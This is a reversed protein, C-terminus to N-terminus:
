QIFSHSRIFSCRFSRTNILFFISWTSFVFCHCLIYVLILFLFLFLSLETSNFFQKHLSIAQFLDIRNWEIRNASMTAHSNANIEFQFNVTWNFSHISFRNKGKEKKPQRWKIESLCKWISRVLNNSQSLKEMPNWQSHKDGPWWVLLRKSIRCTLICVDDANIAHRLSHSM